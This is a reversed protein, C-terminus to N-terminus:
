GVGPPAPHFLVEGDVTYEGILKRGTPGTLFEIFKMTAEYQVHGHTAPNVAIVGYPNRMEEGGDRLVTLAITKRMTVYTGRDALVYARKEGAVTLTAGMGQGTQQYWAGDPVVGASAWLSAEKRHTGSDDGRSCFTARAAAIRRLADAAGPAGRVGAPDAAPGLLVFDNHMVDRRAVGHGEAVFEDEAARAHVLVVDCDGNAGTRLAKGTGMSLVQVVIGTQKEFAEVLVDLLGTAETSTTTALRITVKRAGRGRASGGSDGCGAWAAAVVACVLVCCGASLAQRTM